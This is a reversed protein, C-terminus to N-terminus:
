IWLVIGIDSLKGDEQVMKHYMYRSYIKGIYLYNKISEM